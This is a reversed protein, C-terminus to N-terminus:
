EMHCFYYFRSHVRVYEGETEVLDQLSKKLKDETTWPSSSSADSM